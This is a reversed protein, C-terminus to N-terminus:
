LRNRKLVWKLIIRRDAVLDEWNGRQLEESYV